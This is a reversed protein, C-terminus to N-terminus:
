KLVLTYPHFLGMAFDDVHDGKQPPEVVDDDSSTRVILTHLMMM